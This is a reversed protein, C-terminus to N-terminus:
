LGIECSRSNTCCKPTPLWTRLWTHSLILLALLASPCLFEESVKKKSFLLHDLCKKELCCYLQRVNEDLM